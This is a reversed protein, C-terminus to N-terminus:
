KPRLRVRRAGPLWIISKPLNAGPCFDIFSTMSDIFLYIYYILWDGGISSLCFIIKKKRLQLVRERLSRKGRLM